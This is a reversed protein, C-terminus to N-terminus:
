KNVDTYEITVTMTDKDFQPSIGFGEVAFRLPVFLRDNIIKPAIDMTKTVGNVTYDYKGEWMQVVNNKLTLKVLRQTQFQSVDVTGGLAEVVARIPLLVRGAKADLVPKVENNSSDISIYKTGTIDTVKMDSSWMTLVLQINNIFSISTVNSPTTSIVGNIIPRVNYYVNGKQKPFHMHTNRSVMPSIEITKSSLVDNVKVDAESVYSIIVKYGQAEPVETWTLEVGNKFVSSQKASLNSISYQKIPEFIVVAENSSAGEGYTFVPKVVYNNSGVVPAVETQHIFHGVNSSITMYDGLHNSYEKSKNTKYYVNYGIASKVPTWTLKIANADTVGSLDTVAEAKFTATVESSAEGLKTGRTSKVIYYNDGEVPNADIFKNVDIASGGIIPQQSYGFESAARKYVNYKIGSESEWTIVVRGGEISASINSVNPTYNKLSVTDSFNSITNTNGLLVTRISFEDSDSIDSSKMTYANIPSEALKNNNKFIVFSINKMINQLNSWTLVVAGTKEKVIKVNEPIISDGSSTAMIGLNAEVITSPTSKKANVYSVIYYTYLQNSVVGEDIFETATTDGIIQEDRIIQYKTATDVANWKLSFSNQASKSVTFNQPPAPTSSASSLVNVKLVNSPNYRKEGTAVQRVSYSYNVGSKIDKTDLFKTATTTQTVTSTSPGVTSRIIEYYQLNTVNSPATWKLYVSSENVAGLVLKTPIFEAKSLDELTNVTIQSQSSTLGKLTTAAISYDYETYPTLKKETFLPTKSKGIIKGDRSIVYEKITQTLDTSTTKGSWQLTVFDQGIQNVKLNVPSLEDAVTGESTSTIVQNSFKSIKKTIDVAKISYVYTTGAALNTDSYTTSTTEGIKVLDRYIEYAAVETDDTSEDWTLSISTLTSDTVTLKGPASPIATDFKRSTISISESYDSLIGYSNVLSVSYNYKTEFKVSNDTFETTSSVGYFVGDRAIRYGTINEDSSSDWKFTISYEGINTAELNKPASPTATDLSKTVVTLKQAAIQEKTDSILGVFFVYKTDPQLKNVEYLTENTEAIKEYGKYICYTNGSRNSNSPEWSLTVNSIGVSLAKLNQVNTTVETAFNVSTLSFIISLSLIIALTKRSLNIYM